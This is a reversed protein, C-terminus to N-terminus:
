GGLLAIGITGLAAFGFGTLLIIKDTLQKEQETAFSVFFLVIGLIIFLISAIYLSM